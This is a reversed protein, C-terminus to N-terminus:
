SCLGPRGAELHLHDHHVANYDPSLTTGFIRCADDRIRRLFRAEADDGSWDAAVTIRRGDRLRVGAFDLAAARGHASPRTSGRGNNVPRCAYVGFHDIQVVDSGLIERAAPELSQRRWVSLALATECTMTVDGPAMRAVTGLDAGLVGANTLGCTETDVRDPVPSFRVRAATLEAACPQLDSAARSVAGRTGGDIARDILGGVLPAEVRTPRVAGAREAPPTRVCGALAVVVALFVCARRSM